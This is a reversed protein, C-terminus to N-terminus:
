WNRFPVESNKVNAEKLGQSVLFMYASFRAQDPHPTPGVTVEEVQFPATQEHLPFRYYPTLMSQGERFSFGERFVPLPRSIIRWEKEVAFARDKLIPAYRNLYAFLNGGRPLYDKEGKRTRERNEELVEDILACVLEDQRSPDYICPAFYFSKSIAANRLFGGSFGIAFGSSEGSYARWQPLLDPDESFSCVCM